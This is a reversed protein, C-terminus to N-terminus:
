CQPLVDDHTKYCVSSALLCFHFHGDIYLALLATNNSTLRITNNCLNRRCSSKRIVPSTQRLIFVSDGCDYHFFNFDLIAIYHIDNGHVVKYKDNQSYVWFYNFWLFGNRKRHQAFQFKWLLEQALYKILKATPKFHRSVM